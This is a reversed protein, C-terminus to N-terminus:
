FNHFYNDSSKIVYTGNCYDDYTAVKSEDYDVSVEESITSDNSFLTMVEGFGSKDNYYSEVGELITPDNSGLTSVRGFGSEDIYDDYIPPMSDDYYIKKDFTSPILPDYENLLVDGLKPCANNEAFLDEFMEYENFMADGLKHNQMDDCDNNDIAHIAGITYSVNNDYEELCSSFLNELDYPVDNDEWDYDDCCAIPMVFDDDITSESMTGYSMSAIDDDLADDEVIIKSENEHPVVIIPAVNNPLSVKKGQNKRRKKKKVVDHTPKILKKSSRTSSISQIPLEEENGSEDYYVSPPYQSINERENTSEEYEIKKKTKLYNAIYPNEICNVACFMYIEELDFDLFRKLNFKSIGKTIREMEEYGLLLSLEKHHELTILNDCNKSM